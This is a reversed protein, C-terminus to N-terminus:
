PQVLATLTITCRPIFRATKRKSSHCHLSVCMNFLRRNRVPMVVVAPQSAVGAASRAAADIDAQCPLGKVSPTALAAGLLLPKTIQVRSAGSGNHASGNVGPPM